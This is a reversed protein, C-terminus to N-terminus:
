LAEAERFPSSRVTDDALEAEAADEMDAALMLLTADCIVVDVEIVLWVAIDRLEDVKEEDFNLYYTKM